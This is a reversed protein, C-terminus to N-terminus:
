RAQLAQTPCAVTARMAWLADGWTNSHARFFVTSGLPTIDAVLGTRGPTGDTVWLSVERPAPGSTGIAVSLYLKGGARM